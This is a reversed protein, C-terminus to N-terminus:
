QIYIFRWENTFLQMNTLINKLVNLNIKFSICYFKLNKGKLM